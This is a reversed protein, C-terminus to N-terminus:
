FGRAQAYFVLVGRFSNPCFGKFGVHRRVFFSRWADVLWTWSLVRSAWRPSDGGLMGVCSRRARKCARCSVFVFVFRLRDGPEPPVLASVGRFRRNGRTPGIAQRKSSKSASVFLRPSSNFARPIALFTKGIQCSYASGNVLLPHAM